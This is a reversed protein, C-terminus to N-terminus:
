IGYGATESVVDDELHRISLVPIDSHNVIQQAFAGLFIGTIKSEHGTNIVVLDCNNESAYKQAAKALSDGNVIKVSHNLHHEKILNEVSHLKINFKKMELEDKSDPLGIIHIKSQFKDALVLAMNVKQRSHLSNDIPVLINKYGDSGKDKLTLVPIESLTVVRQANSGIFLEKYGSAGHTGMVILDIDNESVYSEVETTMIGSVVSTKIKVDTHESATKELRSRLKEELEFDPMKIGEVEYALPIIYNRDEVVHLIHLVADFKKSFRVAEKLAPKSTESFDYPILINKIEINKM